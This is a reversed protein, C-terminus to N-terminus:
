GRWRKLQERAQAAERRERGRASRTFIFGLDYLMLTILLVVVVAFAVTLWSWGNM